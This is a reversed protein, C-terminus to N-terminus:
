GKRRWRYSGLIRTPKDPVKQLLYDCLTDSYAYKILHKSRKLTGRLDTESMSIVVDSIYISESPIGNRTHERCAGIVACDDLRMNQTKRFPCKWIVRDDTIELTAFFKEWFAFHILLSGFILFAFGLLFWGLRDEEKIMASNFTVGFMVFIPFLIYLSVFFYRYFHRIIPAPYFRM